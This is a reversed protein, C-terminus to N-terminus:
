GFRGTQGTRRVDHGNSPIPFSEIRGRRLVDEQRRQHREIHGDRADGVRRQVVQGPPSKEAQCEERQEAGEQQVGSEQAAAPRLGASGRSSGAAVRRHHADAPRLHRASQQRQGRGAAGTHARAVALRFIQLDGPLRSRQVDVAGSSRRVTWHFGDATSYERGSQLM